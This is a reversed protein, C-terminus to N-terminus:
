LLRIENLKEDMILTLYGIVMGSIVGLLILIPTLMFVKGQPIILWRVMVLQALNHGVAGLISIGYISFGLGSKIASYMLLLAVLGGSISLLTAPTILTFTIIGGIVSKAINVAFASWFNGHILLYLVIINSLGIRLFPFPLLRMVLSEIVYITCATAILFGLWVSRHKLAGNM